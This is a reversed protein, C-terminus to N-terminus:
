KERRWSKFYGYMSVDCQILTRAHIDPYKNTVFCRRCMVRLGDFPAPCRASVPFFQDDHDDGAICQGISLYTIYESMFGRIIHLWYSTDYGTIFLTRWVNIASASYLINWESSEAVM